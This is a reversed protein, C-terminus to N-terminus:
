GEYAHDDVADSAPGKEASRKLKMNLTQTRLGLMEAARTQVNNTQKMARAIMLREFRAVCQQLDIGQPPIRNLTSTLLHLPLEEESISHPPAAAIASELVAELEDVNGPWAYEQLAEIATPSIELAGKGLRRAIRGALRQALEPIDEPRERLPTLAFSTSQCVEILAYSSFRNSPNLSSPDYETALILRLSSEDAQRGSFISEEILIALKQQTHTSLRAFENIFLTGQYCAGGAPAFLLQHLADASLAHSDFAIFPRGRQHSSQHIARAIQAQRLGREGRLLAPRTQEAQANIFERLRRLSPSSGILFDMGAIETPEAGSAESGARSLAEATKNEM